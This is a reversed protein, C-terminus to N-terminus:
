AIIDKCTGGDVDGGNEKVKSVDSPATIFPTADYPLIM